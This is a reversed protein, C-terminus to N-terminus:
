LGANKIAEAFAPQLRARTVHPDEILIKAGSLIDVVGLEHPYRPVVHLHLHPLSAGAARGLNYGCNFGAPNYLRALVDLSLNQLRALNTLEELSLERPDEVHREPFVMIHGPNYPYLNLSIVFGAVRAVDLNVVGPSRRVVECLICTADPSLRRSRIYGEKDPTFLNAREEM